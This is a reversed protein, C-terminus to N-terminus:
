VGHFEEFGARKDTKRRGMWMTVELDEPSPHYMDENHQEIEIDEVDQTDHSVMGDAKEEVLQVNGNDNDDVTADEKVVDLYDGEDGYGGSTSCDWSYQVVRAINVVELEDMTYDM